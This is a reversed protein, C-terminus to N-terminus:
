HKFSLISLNKERDFHFESYLRTGQNERRERALFREKKGRQELKVNGEEEELFFEKSYEFWDDDRM